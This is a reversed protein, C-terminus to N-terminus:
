WGEDEKPQQEAEKLPTFRYLWWAIGGCLLVCVYVDFLPDWQARGTLGRAKQYDAFVGVFGQSAMAGMVCAFEVGLRERTVSGPELGADQMALQAAVVGLQVPRAMANLSKRYHKAIASKAVFDPIEGGVSCPLASADFSRVTRIGPTGALLAEWFAAPTSGIPSLVGFGTLVARRSNTAM